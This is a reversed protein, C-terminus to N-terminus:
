IPQVSKFVGLKLRYTQGVACPFDVLEVKTRTQEPGSDCEVSEFKAISIRSAILELDDAIWRIIQEHQKPSQDLPNAAGQGDFMDHGTRQSRLDRVMPNYSPQDFPVIGVFATQRAKNDIASLDSPLVEPSHQHGILTPLEFQIEMVFAFLDSRALRRVQGKRLAKVACGGRVHAYSRKEHKHASDRLCYTVGANGGVLKDIAARASRTDVCSIVIDAEEVKQSKSVHEQISKWQLGWFLNIRSALVVSKSLGIESQSFPQRVCNTPSVVDGDILTVDLGGPHGALLLAQHIYPLGMVMASGNGGCGVVM